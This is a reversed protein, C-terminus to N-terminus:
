AGRPGSTDICEVQCITRGVPLKITFHYTGQANATTSWLHKSGVARELRVTAGPVTQGVITVTSRVVVGNGDPDSKPALRATISPPASPTADRGMMSISSRSASLLERAELPELAIRSRRRMKYTRYM